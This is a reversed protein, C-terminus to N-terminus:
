YYIMEGLFYFTNELQNQTTNICTCCSAATPFSTFLFSYLFTLLRYILINFLTKTLRTIGTFGTAQKYAPDISKTFSFSFLRIHIDAPTHCTINFISGKFIRFHGRFIIYSFSNFLVPNIQTQKQPFCDLSGTEESAQRLITAPYTSKTASPFGSPKKTGNKNDAQGPYLFAQEKITKTPKRSPRTSYELADFKKAKVDIIQVIRLFSMSESLFYM